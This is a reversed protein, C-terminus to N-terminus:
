PHGTWQDKVGFLIAMREPPCGPWGKSHGGNDTAEHAIAAVTSIWSAFASIEKATPAEVKYDGNRISVTTSTRWEAM